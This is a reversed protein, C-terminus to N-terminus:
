SCKGWGFTWGSKGRFARVISPPSAAAPVNPNGNVERATITKPNAPDPGDAFGSSTEVQRVLQYSGATSNAAAVRYWGEPARETRVSTGAGTRIAALGSGPAVSVAGARADEDRANLAVSTVEDGTRFPEFSM